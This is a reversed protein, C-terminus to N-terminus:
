RSPQKFSSSPLQPLQHLTYRPALIVALTSHLPCALCCCTYCLTRSHAPGTSVNRARSCSPTTTAHDLLTRPFYRGACGCVSFSVGAPSPPPLALDPIGAMTSPPPMSGIVPAAPPLSQSVRTPGVPRGADGRRHIPIPKAKPHRSTSVPVHSM